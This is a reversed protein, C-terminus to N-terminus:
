AGLVVDNDVDWSDIPKTSEEHVCNGPSIFTVCHQEM